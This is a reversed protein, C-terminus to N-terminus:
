IIFCPSTKRCSNRPGSERLGPGQEPHVLGFGTCPPLPSHVHTEQHVILGGQFISLSGAHKILEEWHRIFSLFCSNRPSARQMAWSQDPTSNIKWILLTTLIKRSNLPFDTVPHAQDKHHIPVCSLLLIQPSKTVTGCARQCGKTEIKREMSPSPSMYSIREKIWEWLLGCIVCQTDPGRIPSLPIPYLLSYSVVTMCSGCCGGSLLPHVSM